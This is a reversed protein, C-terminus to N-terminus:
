CNSPDSLLTWPAGMADLYAWVLIAAASLMWPLLRMPHVTAHSAQAVHAHSLCLLSMIGTLVLIGVKARLRKDDRRGLGVM